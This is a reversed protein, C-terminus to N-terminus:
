KGRRCRPNRESRRREAQSLGQAIMPYRNDTDAIAQVEYTGYRNVLDDEGDPFGPRREAGKENEPLAM